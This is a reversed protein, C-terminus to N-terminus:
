RGFYCGEEKLLTLIQNVFLSLEVKYKNIADFEYPTTPVGSIPVVIEHALYDIKQDIKKILEREPMNVSRNKVGLKVSGQYLSWLKTAMNKVIGLWLVREASNTPLDDWADAFMTEYGVKAMENFVEDYGMMNIM